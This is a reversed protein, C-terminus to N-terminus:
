HWSTMMLCWRCSLQATLPLTPLNVIEIILRSLRLCATYLRLGPRKLVLPFCASIFPLCFLLTDRQLGVIYLLSVAVMDFGHEETLVHKDSLASKLM